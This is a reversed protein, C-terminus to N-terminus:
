KSMLSCPLLISSIHLISYNDSLSLLYISLSVSLVLVLSVLLLELYLLSKSIFINSVYEENKPFDQWKQLLFNSIPYLYLLLYQQLIQELDTWIGLFLIFLIPLSNILM